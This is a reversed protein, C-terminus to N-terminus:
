KVKSTSTILPILTLGDHQIPERSIQIRGSKGPYGVSKFLLDKIGASNFCLHKSTRRILFGEATSQDSSYSKRAPLVILFWDKPRSEDQALKVAAGEKLTLQEELVKNITFCGAASVSLFPVGKPQAKPTNTIDFIKLKM